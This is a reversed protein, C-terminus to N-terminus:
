SRELDDIAARIEGRRRVAEVDHLMGLLEGLDIADLAALATWERVEPDDEQAHRQEGDGEDANHQRTPARRAM